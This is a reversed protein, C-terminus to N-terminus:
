EGPAPPKTGASGLIPSLWQPAPPASDSTLRELWEQDTLRTANVFERYPLVAGRCIVDRGQWPYRVYIASPRAVGVHLYGDRASFVDVVRPADDRPSEWSNGEYFMLWGLHPGYERLFKSEREDFPVGRLQKHALVELTHCTRELEHWRKSVRDNAKAIGSATVEARAPDRLASLLSKLQRAVQGPDHPYDGTLQPGGKLTRILTVIPGLIEDFKRAEAAEKAEDYEPEPADPNKERRKEEKEEQLRDSELKALFPLACEIVEALEAPPLGTARKQYLDSARAVVRGMRAFFEPSPEVFGPLEDDIGAYFQNEKAQLVFTHRMQAWGALSTNICKAEWAASKMFPPADKDPPAFLAALANLYDHYLSAGPRVLPRYEGLLAVPYKEAALLTEAHKSGLLASVELGSPFKRATARSDTSRQFLVADPLRYASLVRYNRESLALSDTPAFRLQDNVTPLDRDARADDIARLVDWDDAEGILERYARLVDHESEEEAYRDPHWDHSLTRAISKIARMEVPNAVRFPVAQLWSVARFYRGLSVTRTYFGRPRFRSYDFGLYDAGGSIWAPRHVGDAIEIRKVESAIDRALDAPLGPTERGLLRLAIGLVMRAHRLAETDQKEPARNGTEAAPIPPPQRGLRQWMTSLLPALRASQATEMEVVSEEFIVHFANLLSDTTVFVPVNSFVYPSFIQRFSDQTILVGQERFKAQEAEPWGAVVKAIQEDGKKDLSERWKRSQTDEPNEALAFVTALTFLALFKTM